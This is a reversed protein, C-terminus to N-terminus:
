TKDRPHSHTHAPNLRCHHSLCCPNKGRSCFPLVRSPRPPCHGDSVFRDRHFAPNGRDIGRYASRLLFRGNRRRSLWGPHHGMTQGDISVRKSFIRVTPPTRCHLTSALDAIAANEGNLAKRSLLLVASYRGVASASALSLLQQVAATPGRDDEPRELSGRSVAFEHQFGSLMEAGANLREHGTPPWSPKWVRVPRADVGSNSREFRCRSRCYSFISCIRANRCSGPYVTARTM